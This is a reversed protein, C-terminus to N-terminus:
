NAVAFHQLGVPAMERGSVCVLIVVTFPFVLFEHICNVAFMRRKPWITRKKESGGYKEMSLTDIGSSRLPAGRSLRSAMAIRRQYGALSVAVNGTPFPGPPITKSPELMQTDFKLSLWRLSFEPRAVPGSHSDESRAVRGRAHSEIPGVNPDGILPATAHRLDFGAIAVLWPVNERQSM